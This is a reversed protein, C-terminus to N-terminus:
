PPGWLPVYDSASSAITQSAISQDTTARSPTASSSYRHVWPMVRESHPTPKPIARPYVGLPHLRRISARLTNMVARCLQESTDVAGRDDRDVSAVAPSEARRIQRLPSNVDYQVLWIVASTLESEVYAVMKALSAETWGGPSLQTQCLKVYQVARNVRAVHLASLLPRGYLTPNHHSASHDRCSKVWSGFLRFGTSSFDSTVCVGPADDIRVVAPTYKSSAHAVIDMTIRGVAIIRFQVSGKMDTGGIRYQRFATTYSCSVGDVAANLDIKVMVMPTADNAARAEGLLARYFWEAENGPTHTACAVVRVRPRTLAWEVVALGTPAVRADDQVFHEYVAAISAVRAGGTERQAALTKGVAACRQSLCPVIYNDCASMSRISAKAVPLVLKCNSPLTDLVDMWRDPCVVGDYMLFPFVVWHTADDVLHQVVNKVLSELRHMSWTSAPPVPIRPTADRHVARPKKPSADHYVRDDPTLIQFTEYSERHRRNWEYMWAVPAQPDIVAIILHTRVDDRTISSTWTVVAGLKSVETNLELHTYTVYDGDATRTTRAVWSSAITTSLRTTM